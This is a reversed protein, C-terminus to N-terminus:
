HGPFIGCWGHSVVISHSRPVCTPKFSHYCSSIMKKHSRKICSLVLSNKPVSPDSLVPRDKWEPMKLCHDWFEGVAQETYKGLMSIGFQEPGARALADLLEHPLLVPIDVMETDISDIVQTACILM